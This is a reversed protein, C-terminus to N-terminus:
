AAMSFPMPKETLMAYLSMQRLAALNGRQAHVLMMGTYALLSLTVHMRVRQIGLYLHSDLLRTQKASGFLREVIGRKNYFRQWKPNARAFHGVKRLDTDTKPKEYFETDCHRSFQIEDKLHCGGPPCRFLHGKKRDTRVYDMDSGGLCRPKGELSYLSHPDTDRIAIVASIKKQHLYRYNSAADYGRDAIVFKTKVQPHKERLQDILKPLQPSDNANAPLIEWSLPVGYEADCTLHLKYGYFYQKEVQPDKSTRVGWQAERDAGRRGKYGRAHAEIDTSDIAVSAGFNELHSGTLDIVQSILADVEAQHTILRKFFRSFTSEHPIGRKFGCLASLRPSANLYTILDRTHRLNLLYRLCIARWMSEPSYGKRGTWRYENLRQLLESADIEDLIAQFFGFQQGPGQPPSHRSPLNLMVLVKDLPRKTM